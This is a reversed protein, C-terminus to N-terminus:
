AIVGWPSPGPTDERDDMDYRVRMLALGCAPAPVGCKGEGSQLLNRISSENYRGAGAEVLTGVLSRVMRRL